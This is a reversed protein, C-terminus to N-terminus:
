SFNGYRKRNWLKAVVATAPTVVFRMSSARLMASRAMVDAIPPSVTYYLRVFARGIRRKLLVDDRFASLLIVEPALPDGCAATAVFCGSKGLRQKLFTEIEQISPDYEKTIELLSKGASKPYVKFDPLIQDIFRMQSYVISLCVAADFNNGSRHCAMGVYYFLALNIEQIKNLDAVSSFGTAKLFDLGEKVVTTYAKLEFKPIVGIQRDTLMGQLKEWTLYDDKHGFRHATNLLKPALSVVDKRNPCGPAHQERADLDAGCEPCNGLHESM